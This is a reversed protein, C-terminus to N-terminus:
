TLTAEEVPRISSSLTLFAHLFLPFCFFCFFFFCFFFVTAHRFYFEARLLLSCATASPPSARSGVPRDPQADPGRFSRGLRPTTAEAARAEFEFLVSQFVELRAGGASVMVSPRLHRRKAQLYVRVRVLKSFRPSTFHRSMPPCTVTGISSPCSRVISSISGWQKSMHVAIPACRRRPHTHGAGALISRCRIGAM